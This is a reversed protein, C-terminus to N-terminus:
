SLGPIRCCEPNCRRRPVQDCDYGEGAFRFRQRLIAGQGSDSQSSRVTGIAVNVGDSVRRIEYELMATDVELNQYAGSSGQSFDNSRELAQLKLYIVYECGRSKAGDLAQSGPLVDLGDAHLLLNLKRDSKHHNLAKVLADRAQTAQNDDNRVNLLAVAIRVVTPEGQPLAPLCSLGLLATPLLIFRACLRAGNGLSDVSVM